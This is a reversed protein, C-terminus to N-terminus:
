VPPPMRPLDLVETQSHQTLASSLPLGQQEMAEYHANSSNSYAPQNSGTYIINGSLVERFDVDDHVMGIVTATYDNLPAFVTQEENTWPTAFNKLTVSYFADNQMAIAAAGVLDNSNIKQEMSNLVTDTPPVGALRDHMQKAQERAGAMVHPAAAMAICTALCLLRHRLLSFHRHAISGTM